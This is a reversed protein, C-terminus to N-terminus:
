HWISELCTDLMTISAQSQAPSCPRCPVNYASLLHKSPVQAAEGTNHPWGPRPLLHWTLILALSLIAKSLINFLENQDSIFICVTLNYMKASAACPLGKFDKTAEPGGGRM